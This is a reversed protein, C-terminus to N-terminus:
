DDQVELRSQEETKIMFDRLQGYRTYRNGTGLNLSTTEDNTPDYHTCFIHVSEFHINLNNCQEKVLALLKDRQAEIM